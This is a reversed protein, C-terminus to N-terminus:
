VRILDVETFIFSVGQCLSGYYSCLLEKCMAFLKMKSTHFYGHTCGNEPSEHGRM